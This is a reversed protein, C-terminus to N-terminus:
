KLLTTNAPPPSSTSAKADGIRHSAIPIEAGPQAAQIIEKLTLATGSPADLKSMHHTESISFKYGELKAIEATM